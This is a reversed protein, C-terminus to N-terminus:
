NLEKFQMIQDIVYISQVNKEDSNTIDLWPTNELEHSSNEPPYLTVNKVSDGHFILMNGSRCGIFENATAMWPRGLILPHGGPPTKTQLVMFDILYEWSELSVIVDDLM